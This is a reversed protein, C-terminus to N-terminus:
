NLLRRVTAVLDAFHFPKSLLEDPPVIEAGEAQECGAYGSIFLVRLDPRKQRLRRAVEWGTMGPMLLDSILLDIRDPHADSISVGNEGSDATLVQFGAAVLHAEALERIPGEDEVVLITPARKPDSLNSM